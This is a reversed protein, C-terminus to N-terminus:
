KKRKWKTWYMVGAAGAAVTASVLAAAAFVELATLGQEEKGYAREGYERFSIKPQVVETLGAQIKAKVNDTQITASMVGHEFGGSADIAAAKPPFTCAVGQAGHDCALGRGSTVKFRNFAPGPVYTFESAGTPSTVDCVVRKDAEAERCYRLTRNSRLAFTNPAVRELQFPEPSDTSAHCVLHDQADTACMHGTLVSKLSVVKNMASAAQVAKAEAEAKKKLIDVAPDWLMSEKFPKHADQQNRAVGDLALFMKNKAHGFRGQRWGYKRWHEKAKALRGSSSGIEESLDLYAKIYMDADEDTQPCAGSMGEFFGKDAYYKKAATLDGGVKQALEPHNQLLCRADDDSEITTRPDTVPVRVVVSKGVFLDPYALVFFSFAALLLLWHTGKM